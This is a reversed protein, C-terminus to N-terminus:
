EAEDDGTLRKFIITHPLDTEASLHESGEVSRWGVTRYFGLATDRGNAWIQGVGRARLDDEAFQLVLAGYGRGQVDFDAAMYRLQYTTLSPNMPPASPFFSASVVLRDALFGGYHLSSPEDDRADPHYLM